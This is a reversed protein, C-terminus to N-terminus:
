LSSVQVARQVSGQTRNIDTVRVVPNPMSEMFKQLMAQNQLMNTTEMGASRGTFGGDFMGSIHPMPNSMGLRMGELQSALMSGKQTNLVRSPIVYEDKHYTYSKSGLNTSVEHPNGEGTYGGEEFSSILQKAQVMNATITLIGAALKAFAAIGGTAINDPSLPSFSTATLNSIAIATNAAINILAAMKAYVQLKQKQAEKESEIKIEENAFRKKADLSNKNIANVNDAYRKEAQEKQENSKTTDNLIADLKEKERKIKEENSSLELDQERKLRDKKENFRKEEDKSILTAVNLIGDMVNKASNIEQERVKQKEAQTQRLLEIEMNAYRAQIELYKASNQEVGYLEEERQTNLIEKKAEYQSNLNDMQEQFNVEDVLRLEQIILNQQSRRLDIDKKFYEKNIREEEEKQKKELEIIKANFEIEAKYLAEYNGKADEQQIQYNYEILKRQEDFGKENLNIREQIQAELLTIEEDRNKEISQKQINAVNRFYEAEAKIRDSNSKSKDKLIEEYKFKELAIEQMMADENINKQNIIQSELLTIQEQKIKESYAKQIAIVNKLYEESAKLRDGYSSKDDSLIKKYKYSELAIEEKTSDQYLNKRRQIAAELIKIQDDETKKLEKYNVRQQEKYSNELLKQQEDYGKNANLLRQRINSEELSLSEKGFRTNTAIIDTGSKNLRILKENELYDLQEQETAGKEVLDELEDKYQKLIITRANKVRNEEIKNYANSYDEFTKLVTVQGKKLTGNLELQKVVLDGIKNILEEIAKNSDEIGKNYAETADKNLELADNQSILAAVSEVLKAGYVTLLTVGISLLSQVSTLSGLISKFVSTTAKGQKALEVNEDKIRKIADFFMPLNNSIAMFGTQVSNAFAPMERTLQMMSMNLGQIAKSQDIAGKIREQFLSPMSMEIKIREQQLRNQEAILGNYVKGGITVKDLMDRNEKLQQKLRGYTGEAFKVASNIGGLANTNAKLADNQEKLIATVEKASKQANIFEQSGAAAEKYISKLRKLEEELRKINNITEGFETVFLRVEAM